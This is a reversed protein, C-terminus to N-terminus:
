IERITSDSKDRFYAGDKEGNCLKGLWSRHWCCGLFAFRVKLIDLCSYNKNEDQYGKKTYSEQDEDDLNIVLRAPKVSFLAKYHGNRTTCGRIDFEWEEENDDDIADFIIVQSSTLAHYTKYGGQKMLYTTANIENEMEEIWRNEDQVYPNGDSDCGLAQMEIWQEGEQKDGASISVILSIVIVWFYKTHKM